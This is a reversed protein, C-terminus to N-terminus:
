LERVCRTRHKAETKQNYYYTYGSWFRVEWCHTHSFEASVWYNGTYNSPEFPNSLSSHAVWVGMLQHQAPLYWQFAPDDVSAFTNLGANKNFCLAAAPYKDLGRQVLKLTNGKGDVKDTVGTEVTETSWQANTSEDTKQVWLEKTFQWVGNRAKLEGGFMGAYQLDTIDMEINEARSDNWVTAHLTAKITYQTNGQLNYDTTLNAGPYIYYNIRKYRNPDTSTLSFKIYSAGRPANTRREFNTTGAVDGRRNTPLYFTFDTYASTSLTLNGQPTYSNSTLKGDAPFLGYAEPFWYAPAIDMAQAQWGATALGTGLKVRVVVKAYIRTLPITLPNNTTINAEVDGSMPVGEAMEQEIPRVLTKLTAYTTTATLKDGLNKDFSNALVVVRQDPGAKLAFTKDASFKERYQKGVLLANDGRGNFQFVWVNKVAADDMVRTAPEDVLEANISGINSTAIAKTTAANPSVPSMIGEPLFTLSVAVDEGEPLPKGSDDILEKACGGLLLSVATTLAFLRYKDIIKMM